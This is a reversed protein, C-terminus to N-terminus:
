NSYTPKPAYVPKPAYTAKPAYAKAEPYQAQGEYSVDAVYGSYGDAVTYTVIQTRGDPLAVRYGGNTAYGNREENAGFNLNAYSPPPPPPTGLPLM